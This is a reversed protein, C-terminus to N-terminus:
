TSFSSMTTSTLTSTSPSPLISNTRNGADFYAVGGGSAFVATAVVVRMTAITSTFATATSPNISLADDEVDKDGVGSGGKILESISERRARGTDIDLDVDAEELVATTV